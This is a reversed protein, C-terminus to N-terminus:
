PQQPLQHPDAEWFGEQNEITPTISDEIIGNTVITEPEM